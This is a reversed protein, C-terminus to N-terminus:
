EAFYWCSPYTPLMTPFGLALLFAQKELATRARHESSGSIWLSGDSESRILTAPQPDVCNNNLEDSGRKREQTEREKKQHQKSECVERKASYKYSGEEEKENEIGRGM